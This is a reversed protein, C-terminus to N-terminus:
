TKMANFLLRWDGFGQFLSGLDLRAGSTLIQWAVLGLAGWALLTVYAQLQGTQIRRLGRGWAAVTDATGNVLGDVVIADTSAMAVTHM